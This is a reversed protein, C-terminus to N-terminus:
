RGIAGRLEHIAQAAESKAYAGMIVAVGAAGADLVSRANAANIGGVAVVPVGVMRALQAFQEVGLAAIGRERTGRSFVPGISVYDASRSVGIDAASGISTGVLMQEPVVGRVVAPAMEDPSLHVGAAGAAIAVDARDHVLVPVGLARVLARCADLMTRADEGKLRLQVATAGSQVAMLSRAVLEDLGDRLTDAIAVLALSARDVL